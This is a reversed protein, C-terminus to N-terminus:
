RVNYFARGEMRTVTKGNISSPISIRTKNGKYGTIALTGDTLTSYNFDTEEDTAASVVIDTGIFQGVTSFGTGTLMAAALSVALVKRLVKSQSTQKFGGIIIYKPYKIENSFM